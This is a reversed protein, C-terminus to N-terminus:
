PHFGISVLPMLIFQSFMGTLPGVPKKLVEKVVSLETKCGMAVNALCVLVIVVGTFSHSLASEVRSVAVDYEGPLQYWEALDDEGVKGSALDYMASGHLESTNAYLKISTRGLFIGKLKTTFNMMKSDMTQSMNTQLEALDSHSVVPVIKFVKGSDSGLTFTLMREEEEDIHM